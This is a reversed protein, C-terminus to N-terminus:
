STKHFLLVFIKFSLRVRENEGPDVIQIKLALKHKVIVWKIILMTENAHTRYDIEDVNLTRIKKYSPQKPLKKECMYSSFLQQFSMRVFFHMRLVNIFNIGLLSFWVYLV